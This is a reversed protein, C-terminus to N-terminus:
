DKLIKQNYKRETENLWDWRRSGTYRQSSLRIIEELSEWLTQKNKKLINSIYPYKGQEYRLSIRAVTSPSVCLTDSINHTSIGEELMWLIALRKALMIKESHTLFEKLLLDSKRKTGSTDIISVFQTYIKEFHEDPIKRTSVHPM